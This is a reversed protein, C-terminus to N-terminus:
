SGKTEVLEANEVVGLGPKEILRGRITVIQAAYQALQHNLSEHKAGQRDLPAQPGILLYMKGDETKIGVPLGAEICRRACAAHAPGSGGDDFYCALDIVEGTVASVVPSTTKQSDTLTFWVNLGTLVTLLLAAAGWVPRPVGLFLNVFRKREPVPKSAQQIREWVTGNFEDTLRQSPRESLVKLCQDLQSDHM